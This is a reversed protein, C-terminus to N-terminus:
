LLIENSNIKAADWNLKKKKKITRIIEYIAKRKSLEERYIYIRTHM